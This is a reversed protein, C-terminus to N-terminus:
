QVANLLNMMSNGLVCVIQCATDGQDSLDRRSKSTTQHHRAWRQKVAQQNNSFAVIRPPTHATTTHHHPTCATRTITTPYPPSLPESQPSFPKRTGESITCSLYSHFGKSFNLIWFKFELLAFKRFDLILIIEPLEWINYRFFIHFYPDGDCKECVYMHYAVHHAMKTLCSFLFLIKSFFPKEKKTERTKKTKVNMRSEPRTEHYM